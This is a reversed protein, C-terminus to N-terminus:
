MSSVIKNQNKAVRRKIEDGERLVSKSQRRVESEPNKVRRREKKKV